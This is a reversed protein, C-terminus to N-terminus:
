FVSFPGKSSRLQGCNALGESHSTQQPQSERAERRMKGWETHQERKTEKAPAETNGTWVHSSGLSDEAEGEGRM